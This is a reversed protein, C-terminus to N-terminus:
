DNKRSPAPMMKIMRQADAMAATFDSIEEATRVLQSYRLQRSVPDYFGIETEGTCISSRTRIQLNECGPPIQSSSQHKRHFWGM